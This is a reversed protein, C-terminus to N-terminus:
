YSAPQSLCWDVTSKKKLQNDCVKEEEGVVDYVKLSLIKVWLSVIPNQKGIASRCEYIILALALSAEKWVGGIGLWADQVAEVVAVHHNIM